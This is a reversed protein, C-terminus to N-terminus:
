EPDGSRLCSSALPTLSSALHAWAMSEAEARQLKDCPTVVTGRRFWCTGQVVGLETGAQADTLVVYDPHPGGISTTRAKTSAAYDAVGFHLSENRRSAAAIENLLLSKGSGSTGAIAVNYNGAPNDYVDIQM